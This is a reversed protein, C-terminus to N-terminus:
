RQKKQGLLITKPNKFGVDWSLHVSTVAKQMWNSFQSSLYRCQPSLPHKRPILSFSFLKSIRWKEPIYKNLERRSSKNRQLTPCCTYLLVGSRLLDKDVVYCHISIPASTTGNVMGDKVCIAQLTGVLGLVLKLTRHSLNRLCLFFNWQSKIKAFTKPLLARCFYM